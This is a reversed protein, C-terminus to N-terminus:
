ETVEDIIQKPTIMRGIGNAGTVGERGEEGYLVKKYLGMLNEEAIIVRDYSDIIGRIESAVPLLTKVILLSVDVGQMRLKEVAERAAFSSVGYSVVLKEAGEQEDLDYYLYEDIRDEVKDNLRKTNAMAEPTAKRLIGSEDHTSATMRVQNSEAGLPLFPPVLDSVSAYPKYEDGSYFKWEVKEVGSLSAEDISRETELMEKSTLFIVPTRLLVAVCLAEASLRYCDEFDSPSIVPLNYGGSILRNLMGLDGQANTTASGTSPGLRQGLVILLPLEMMFAMDVTEVMLSFGAHSTATMTLNGTASLGCAWQLATIEDPAEFVKSIRETAYRYVENLPTIPYGSYAEVGGKAAGEVILRSGDVLKM